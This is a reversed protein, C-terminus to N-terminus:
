NRGQAITRKTPLSLNLRRLHRQVAESVVTSTVV